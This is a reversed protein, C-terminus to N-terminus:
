ESCPLKVTFVTGNRPNSSVNIKGKHLEVIRKAISLGLGYGSVEIKSRSFDARYFRDFIHPVDDESIGIGSDEISVMVTRNKVESSIRVTGKPKSYKIANDLIIVFLEILSSKRGYIHVRSVKSLIKIHNKKAIPMVKKVSIEIIESVLVNEFNRSHIVEEEYISFTMLRESLNQLNVVEELNSKIIENAKLVTKNKDRLYVEIESRLATLPTKLEHSADGIFRNQEDVMKKIPQLTRGALFFGAVFSGAFICANLIILSLILRSRAEDILQDNLFVVMPREPIIGFENEMRDWRSSEFVAFRGLERNVDIYLVVSFVISIFMIILLYWGTLILRTKQFM